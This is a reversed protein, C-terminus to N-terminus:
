QGVRNSRMFEWGVVAYLTEKNYYTFDKERLTELLTSVITHRRKLIKGQRKSFSQMLDKDKVQLDLLIYFQNMKDLAYSFLQSALHQHQKLALYHKHENAIHSPTEM